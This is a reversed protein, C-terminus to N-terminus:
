DGPPVFRWQQPRGPSLAGHVRIRYAAAQALREEPPRSRWYAVERRDHLRWHDEASEFMWRVGHDVGCM